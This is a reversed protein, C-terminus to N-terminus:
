AAPSVPSLRINVAAVSGQHPTTKSERCAHLKGGIKKEELLECISTNKVSLIAEKPISAITTRESINCTAFVGLADGSYQQSFAKIDVHKFEIRQEKFWQLLGKLRSSGDQAM